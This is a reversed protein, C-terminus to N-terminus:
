KFPWPRTMSGSDFVADEDFGTLPRAKGWSAPDTTGDAGASILRYSQGDAGLVYAYSHGWADVLPAKRVYNPQIMPVLEDFTKAAPYAKNKMAYAEIGTALSRMDSMTWRAREADTPAYKEAGLVASFILIAALQTKM